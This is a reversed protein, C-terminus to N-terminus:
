IYVPTKVSTEPDIAWDETYEPIVPIRSKVMKKPAADGNESPLLGFVERAEQLLKDAEAHHGILRWKKAYDFLYGHSDILDLLDESFIASGNNQGDAAIGNEWLFLRFYAESKGLYKSAQPLTYQRVIKQITTGNGSPLVSEAIKPNKWIAFNLEKFGKFISVTSHKSNSFSKKPTSLNMLNTISTNTSQTSEELPSRGTQWADVGCKLGDM